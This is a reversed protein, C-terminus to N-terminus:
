IIFTFFSDKSPMKVVQGHVLVIFTTAGDLAYSRVVGLSKVLNVSDRM